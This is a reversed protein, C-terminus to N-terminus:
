KKYLDNVIKKLNVTDIYIDNMCTGFANPSAGIMLSPSLGNTSCTKNNISAEEIIQRPHSTALRLLINDKERLNLGPKEFSTLFGHRTMNDAVLLYHKMNLKEDILDKLEYTIKDKVADIGYIKSYTVIDDTQLYDHDIKDLLYIEYFNTGYTIIFWYNDEILENNILKFKGVTRHCKASIIGPIGSINLNLIDYLQRQILNINNKYKKEIYNESIYIRIIIEISNENNYIIYCGKLEQKLKLIVDNLTHSKNFLYLKDIILRINFKSLNKSPLYGKNYQIFKDILTKQENIYKPHTIILPTEYFIQFLSVFEKLKIMTLKNAFKQNISENNKMENKLIITMTLDIIKEPKKVSLIEKIRKMGSKRGGEAASGAHTDLANQTMPESICQATIIGIPTAPSILSKTLKQTIINLIKEFDNNHIKYNILNNSCLNFRIYFELLYTSKKYIEPVYIKDKQNNSNFYIYILNECYNNLKKMMNKINSTTDAIDKSFKNLILVINFPINIEFISDTMNNNPNIYSYQIAIKNIENKYNLLKNYELTEYKYKKEFDKNNMLLINKINLKVSNLVDFSNYGYIYQIIHTNNKIIRINNVIVSELNKISKRNQDGATATMLAKVIIDYRSAMTLILYESVNTGSFYSNCVYGKSQPTLDYRQFYPSTKFYSFKCPLLDKGNMLKLGITALMEIMQAIKGKSGSMALKLLNNKEFDIYKGIDIYSLTGRKKYSEEYYDKNTKGIPIILKNTLLEDKLKYLSKLQELLKTKRIENINEDGVMVDKIGLSFGEYLTYSIAIQQMNYIIEVTKTNGLENNIINYISTSVGGEGISRKDLVGSLIKGNKIILRKENENYKYTKEYNENYWNTIINTNVIKPIVVSMIDCGSMEGNKNFSKFYEDIYSEINSINSIIRSANKKNLRVHDRTTLFSGIISDYTQGLHTSSYQKSTVFEAIGGLLQAELRTAISNLIIGNMQDGDFDANFYKCIIVNMGISYFNPNTDIIVKVACISSYTLSPQRNFYVVDGDMLDRQIIDGNELIINKAFILFYKNRKGNINKIISVAGPYINIGNKLIKTLRDKNYDNVIEDITINKAFKIPIKIHDLPLTPDCVIVGRFMGHVRRGLINKRILGEKSKFRELIPKFNNMHLMKNPYGNNVVTIGVLLSLIYNNMTKIKNLNDPEIETIDGVVPIISENTKIILQIFSTIQDNPTRDSGMPRLDPRIQNPPIYFYTSIINKPHNEELIKLLELDTEKINNLMNLILHTYFIKKEEGVQYYVFLDKEVGKVYVYLQKKCNICKDTTRLELIQQIITQDNIKKMNLIIKKSYQLASCNPCFIKLIKKLYNYFMPKIFPYKLKYHGSHGICKEKTHNCTLCKINKDTVGLHMDYPGNETPKNNTYLNSKTLGINSLKYVIEDSMINFKINKITEISVAENQIQQKNM